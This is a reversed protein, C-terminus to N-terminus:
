DPGTKSGDGSQSLKSFVHKESELEQLKKDIFQVFEAKYTHKVQEWHRRMLERRLVDNIVAEDSKWSSEDTLHERHLTYSVSLLGLILSALNDEESEQLLSATLKPNQLLALDIDKIYQHYNIITSLRTQKAAQTTQWATIGLTVILIITTIISTIAVVLNLLENSM